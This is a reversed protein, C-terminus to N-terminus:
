PIRRHPFTFSFALTKSAIPRDTIEPLCLKVFVRALDHLNWILRDTLGVSIQSDSRALSPPGRVAHETPPVLCFAPSPFYLGLPPPLTNIKQPGIKRCMKLPALIKQLQPPRRRL